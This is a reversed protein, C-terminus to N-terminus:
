SFDVLTMNFCSAHGMGGLAKDLGQVRKGACTLMCALCM